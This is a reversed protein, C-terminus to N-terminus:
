CGEDLGPVQGGGVQKRERNLQKKYIARQATSAFDSGKPERPLYNHLSHTVSVPPLSELSRQIEQVLRARAYFDDPRTDEFTILFESQEISGMKSELKALSSIVASDKDFLMNANVGAVLKPLGFAAILMFAIGSMAILTKRAHIGAALKAWSRSDDARLALRKQGASGFRALLWPIVILQFALSFVVGTACIFGFHRIAPFGSRGLSLMGIATTLASITCAKWGIRILQRPDGIAGLSYRILHISGSTTLVFVLSPIIAMLGGFKLGCVPVIAVSCATAGTATVFVILMLSFSRLCFLSVLTALVFSPLLLQEISERLQDDVKVGLYPKGGFVVDDLDLGPLDDIVQSVFRLSSRRDASGKSTLQVVALTQNPDQVGFFLGTFRSAIQERRFGLRGHCDPSLTLVM